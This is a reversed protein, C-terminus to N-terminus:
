GNAVEVAHRLRSSALRLRERDDDTLAIGNALNDAALSALSIEFAVCRLVDAAHFPRRERPLYDGIARPPFLADFDLRVARLEDYNECGARCIMLVRGDECERVNLSPRRDEHASCRAIWHGPATQRVGDLRSLLAEATM